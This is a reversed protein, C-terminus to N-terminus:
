FIQFGVDIYLDVKVPKGNQMAPKFKYQAVAEAAKEDLGMGAGRVVRVHSPNGEEDVWLYVEVNGSFKAKRAEESYDPDVSRLVVPAHVSGGVHMVGGGMDGGSGPGIGAGHGSGLGTGTGNGLSVGRLSSNPLGLNPMNNNALQIDKQMVLTPEAALRPQAAPPAKLPVLQKDAFKPLRGQTAPSLDRAGGGGGMHDTRPVPPPPILKAIECDDCHMKLVIPKIYPGSRSLGFVLLAIAAAHAAIATWFSARSGHVGGVEGFTLLLGGAQARPLEVDAANALRRLMRGQLTRDAAAEHVGGSLDLLATNLAKDFDLDAEYITADNLAAMRM